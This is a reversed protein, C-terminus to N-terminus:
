KFSFTRSCVLIPEIPAALASSAGVGLAMLLLFAVFAIRVRSRVTSM